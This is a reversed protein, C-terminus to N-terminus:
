KFFKLEQTDEKTGKKACYSCIWVNEQMNKYETDTIGQFKSHFLKKCSGCQVGKGRFTVRRKCDICIAKGMGEIPRQLSKELNLGCIQWFYLWRLAMALDDSQTYWMKKYKFRVNTVALKFISKM